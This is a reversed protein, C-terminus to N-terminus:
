GPSLLTCLVIPDFAALSRPHRIGTAFHGGRSFSFPFLVINRGTPLKDPTSGDESRRGKPCYGGIPIELELGTDPAARDVGTQDGSIIKQLKVKGQM